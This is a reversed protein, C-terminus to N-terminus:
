HSLTPSQYSVGTPRLGCYQRSGPKHDYQQHYEEAPYFNKLDDIETVIEATIGRANLAEQYVQKSKEAITKQEVNECYIGSRYQTGVDNGQRMPTTPDHLEWFDKLLTEYPRLLPDFVIQVVEVHNTRGSCVEEYTPNETVGQCYGVRTVFIGPANKALSAFHGESCWFCGMGFTATQFNEPFPGLLFNKTIVHRSSSSTAGPINPDARGALCRSPALLSPVSSNVLSMFQNYISRM